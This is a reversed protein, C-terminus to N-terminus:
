IVSWLGNEMDYVCNHTSNLTQHCMTRLLFEFTVMILLFMMSIWGSHLKLQNINTWVVVSFYDLRNDPFFIITSM